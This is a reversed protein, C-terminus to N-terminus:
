REQYRVGVFLSRGPVNFDRVSEYLRNGLNDARVFATWEMNIPKDYYANVLTYGGMNQLNAADNFRAGSSFLEVGLKGGFAARTANLNTFRKARRPLVLNNTADRPDQYNLTASVEAEFVQTTATVTTGSIRAEGVNQPRLPTGANVILNTVRNRFRVVGIQVQRGKYQLGVENNRASEPLLNPNGFAPFYLQNFTPAKFATGTGATVRFERSIDFGYGAYGTNKIGFLDYRDKRASLQFHHKDASAQYGLALTNVNRSTVPFITTGNIRQQLTEMSVMLAGVPLAIDNQWVMQDQATRFVSQSNASTYSTSDDTSTGITLQSGWKEGIRTRGFLSTSSLTSYIRYDNAAPSSDFHTVGDSYFMKLGLEQGPGLLKAFQGSLNVNRYGDADPNFSTSRPNRIATIGNTNTAGVQLAYRLGDNEYGTGASLSTTGYSGYGISFNKGPNGRGSRTFIQIVGGIASSGYLSSAPGRLIEIREIQDLPINEFATTGLTASGMRVGDILVLVHDSNTGRIFVGMTTGPGGSQTIEIGPVARMVERLTAGGKDLQERDIITIDSTLENVRTPTRTATVIVADLASEIQTRQSTNQSFVFPSNLSLAAITVLLPRSLVRM